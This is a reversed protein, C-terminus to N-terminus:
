AGMWENFQELAKEKSNFVKTEAVSMEPLRRTVKYRKGEKEEIEMISIEWKKTPHKKTEKMRTRNRKSGYLNEQKIM